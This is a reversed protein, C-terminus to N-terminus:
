HSLFSALADPSVCRLARPGSPVFFPKHPSWLLPGVGGWCGRTSRGSEPPWGAKGARVKLQLGGHELLFHGGEARSNINGLGSGLGPAAAGGPACPNDANTHMENESSGLHHCLPFGSTNRITAEKSERLTVQLSM